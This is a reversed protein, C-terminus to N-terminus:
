RASAHGPAILDPVLMHGDLCFHEIPVRVVVSLLATFPCLGTGAKKFKLLVNFGVGFAPGGPIVDLVSPTSLNWVDIAVALNKGSSGRRNSHKTSARRNTNHAGGRWWHSRPVVSFNYRNFAHLDKADEFDDVAMIRTAPELVQFESVRELWEVYFFPCRDLNRFPRAEADVEYVLRSPDV